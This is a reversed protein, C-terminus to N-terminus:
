SDAGLAPLRRRPLRAPLRRPVLARLLRSALEAGLADEVRDRACVRRQLADLRKIDDLLLREGRRGSRPRADTHM